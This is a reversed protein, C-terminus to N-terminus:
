IGKIYESFLDSNYSLDKNFNTGLEKWEEYFLPLKDKINNYLNESICNFDSRFMIDQLANCIVNKDKSQLASYKESCWTNPMGDLFGLLVFTQNNYPFINVVNVTDVIKTTPIFAYRNEEAITIPSALCLDLCFPLVALKFTYKSYDKKFIGQEFLQKYQELTPLTRKINNKQESILIPTYDLENEWVFTNSVEDLYLLADQKIRIERCITKYGLLYQCHIDCWNVNDNEIPLFLNNDHEKCFGYFSFSEKAAKHEYKIPNRGYLLNFFNDLIFAYVKGNTTIQKIIRKRQFVHSNIAKESCQPCMCTHTANNIRNRIEEIIQIYRERTLQNDM